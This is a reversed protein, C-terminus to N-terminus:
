AIYRKAVLLEARLAEARDTKGRRDLEVVAREREHIEALLLDRVQSGSLLLREVEASGRRFRHQVLARQAEHVPPAETNDIAAILSRIVKAETTHRNKMAIRLDVRLRDKM